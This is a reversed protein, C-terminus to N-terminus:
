LSYEVVSKGDAGPRNIVTSVTASLCNVRESIARLASYYLRPTIGARETMALLRRARRRPTSSLGVFCDGRVIGIQRTKVVRKKEAQLGEVGVIVGGTTLSGGKACDETWTWVAVGVGAATTM